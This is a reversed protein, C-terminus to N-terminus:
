YRLWRLLERLSPRKGYMLIGVRYIKAALRIVIITSVVLIGMSLALDGLTAGGLFFRLPMLMPSWFPVLTMAASTSGRPDNTIMSMCVMGVMLVMTIPMQAQQSEQDSSVMAGVAAYMASYFVYGLVFFVITVAIQSGGLAPLSPGTGSGGLAKVIKLQYALTIAGMALWIAIQVFGAGGVGLIKGAMLSRPKATAVMLEVVRSTKEMVVSRMVNIGYLTIAFYLILSLVYGLLFTAVGSKGEAEGTTHLPDVVVDAIIQDIQGQTLGERDARAMLVARGVTRQLLVGVSTNSANDGKYPVIVAKGTLVDVPIVIFGNITKDSIQKLLTTEPTAPPVVEADWKLPEDKLAVRLREGVKGSKDVIKVKAGEYGRGALLAPVIIAAAIMVPGLVTMIVFWKSRVRELFERKAIVLSERM